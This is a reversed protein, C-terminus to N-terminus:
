SSTVEAPEERSKESRVAKPPDNASGKTWPEGKRSTERNRHILSQTKRELNWQLTEKKLAIEFWTNWSGASGVTQDSARLSSWWRGVKMYLLIPSKKSGRGKWVFSSPTTATKRGRAIEFAGNSVEEVRGYTSLFSVLVNEPLDVPVNCVTVKIKRSDMYEPQQRYFKTVINKAAYRKADGEAPPLVDWSAYSRRCYYWM